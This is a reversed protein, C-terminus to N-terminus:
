TKVLLFFFYCFILILFLTRSGLSLTYYAVLIYSNTIPPISADRSYDCVSTHTRDIFYFPRRILFIFYFFFSLVDTCIYLTYKVNHPLSIICRKPLSAVLSLLLLLPEPAASLRRLLTPLRFWFIQYLLSDSFHCVCKRSRKNYYTSTRVPYNTGRKERGNQSVGRSSGLENVNADRRARSCKYSIYNKIIHIDFIYIHSVRAFIRQSVGPSTRNRLEFTYKYIYM